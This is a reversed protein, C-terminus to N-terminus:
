ATIAVAGVGKPNSGYLNPGPQSDLCTFVLLVLNGLPVFALLLWWGSMGMDHLRRVCVALSPVVAALAYLCCLAYFVMGAKGSVVAALGLIAFIIFHFLSFMWYEKRRSRGNFEAYKQWVMVYWDMKEEMAGASRECRDRARM